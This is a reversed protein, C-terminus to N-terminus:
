AARSQPTTQEEILEAFAAVVVPDFQAGALGEIETLAWAPSAARRYPRDNTMADFADVM